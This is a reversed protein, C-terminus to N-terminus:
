YEYFEPKKPWYILDFIFGFIPIRGITNVASLKENDWLASIICNPLFLKERTRVKDYNYIRVAKLIKIIEAAFKQCNHKFVSYDKAEWKKGKFNDCLERLTIKNMINCFFLRYEISSDLDRFGYICEKLSIGYHNSAMIYFCAASFHKFGRKALKMYSKLNEDSIITIRAGDKNIYYYNLNNSDTRPNRSKKSSDSSSIRNTKKETEDSFYQGYELIVNNIKKKNFYQKNDNSLTLHIAIHCFTPTFIPHIFLQACKGLGRAFCALENQSLPIVQISM